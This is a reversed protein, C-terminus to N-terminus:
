SKLSRPLTRCCRAGFNPSSLQGAAQEDYSKKVPTFRRQTYIVGPGVKSERVRRSHAVKPNSFVQALLLTENRFQRRMPTNENPHSRSLSATAPCIFPRLEM